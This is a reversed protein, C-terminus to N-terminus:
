YFIFVLYFLSDYFWWKSEMSLFKNRGKIGRGFVWKVKKKFYSDIM